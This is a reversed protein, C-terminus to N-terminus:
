HEFRCGHAHGLLVPAVLHLTNEIVQGEAFRVQAGEATAHGGRWCETSLDVLEHAIKIEHDALPTHREIVIGVGGVERAGASGFLHGGVLDVGDQGLQAPRQSRDGGWSPRRSVIGSDRRWWRRASAARARACDLTCVSGRRLRRRRMVAAEATTRTTTTPTTQNVRTWGASCDAGVGGAALTVGTARGVNPASAVALSRVRPAGGSMAVGVAPTAPGVATTTVLEGHCTTTARPTTASMSEGLLTATSPSPLRYTTSKSPSKTWFNEGPPWGSIRNPWFPLAGAWNAPGLSTFTSAWPLM